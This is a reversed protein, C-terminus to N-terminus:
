RLNEDDSDFTAPNPAESVWEPKVAVQESAQLSSIM